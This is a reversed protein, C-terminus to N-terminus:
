RRAEEGTTPPEFYQVAWFVRDITNSKKGCQYLIDNDYRLFKQEYEKSVIFHWKRNEKLFLSWTARAGFYWVRQTSRLVM